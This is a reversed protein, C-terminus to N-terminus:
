CIFQSSHIYVHYTYLQVHYLYMYLTYTYICHIHIYVYYLYIYIYMYNCIQEVWTQLYGQGQDTSAQSTVTLPRRFSRFGNQSPSSGSSWGNKQSHPCQLGTTITMKLWVHQQTSILGIKDSM